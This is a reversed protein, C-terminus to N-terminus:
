SFNLRIETKLETVLDKVKQEDSKRFSIVGTEKFFEWQQEVYGSNIKEGRDEVRLAMIKFFYSYVLAWLDSDNIDKILSLDIQQGIMQSTTRDKM